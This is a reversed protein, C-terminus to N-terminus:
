IHPRAVIKGKVMPLIEAVIVTAEQAYDFLRGHQREFFQEATYEVSSHPANVLICVKEGYGLQVNDPDYSDAPCVFARVFKAERLGHINGCWECKM